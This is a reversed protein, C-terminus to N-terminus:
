LMEHSDIEGKRHSRFKFLLGLLQLTIIPTMAVLAIMGFADKLVDAGAVSDAVGQAFALIFTATMPGSAVGGADFAIGVFLKPTFFSLLVSLGFGPLLFHWLQVSPLVIRLISLAVASGVGICLAALVVKRKVYGSTVTEIQHTLIHVAPEALITVLGLVFGVLVAYNKSELAAIRYGVAVGVDMFGANVGTLFLVLGIWTYLIGKLIRRVPRKGFHFAKYQFLVFIILVPLLAMASEGMLTPMIRFFPSFIATTEAAQHELTGTLGSMKSFLGLLLVGFIAGTSTVGVLGFSDKESAKSDKKLSSSGLALAMIFPVTLAGTTAGSSDFAIALFEPAVFIALVGIIGYLITLLKFLPFNYVIRILGAVLMVGIGVSVAILISMKSIQGGTVQGVQDALIQLDPEAISIFFGIIVGVVALIWIRNSKSLASGINQGLPTISLDVGFLFISLGLVIWVAGILFRVLMASPLPTILFHLLLVIGTIPLVSYLVEKVKAWLVSLRYM